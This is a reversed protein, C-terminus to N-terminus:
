LKMIFALIVFAPRNDIPDPNSSGAIGTSGGHNHLGDEDTGGALFVGFDRGVVQTVGSTNSYPDAYVVELYAGHTHGGDTSIPHQHAPLNRTSLKYSNSGGENGVESAKTTGMVFRDQLNPTGNLGNCLAWGRLPGYGKGTEDFYFPGSYMIISGRPLEM